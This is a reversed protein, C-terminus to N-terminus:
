LCGVFEPRVFYLLTGRLYPLKALRGLMEPRQWYKGRELERNQWSPQLPLYGASQM